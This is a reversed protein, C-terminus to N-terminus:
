TATNETQDRRHDRILLRIPVESFPLLDRFRNLLFRQYNNDFNHPNNVFLAITPPHVALQTVYYVRPQKGSKSAPAKERILQDVTRNLEGTTIRHDAQQYLNMAMGVIDRLGEEQQASVFVFPCFSLGKLTDDFYSMFQEQTTDEDVLDWKNVVVVTPKFHSLIENALQSDVQSIPVTADIVFLVVHARRISRLARHHSYFDIDEKISKRRRVGATDIATFVHGDMEFRVDVSDRTTGAQENVIVRQAGVLANVLTSKGANRKGVIAMLMGPDPRDGQTEIESFDLQDRIAQRLDDRGYGTTASIMAPDGMGLSLADYADNVQQATDVKNAVLLIKQDDRVHRRLLQAVQEDLPNVGTQADIVFLVLNAEDLASRIQQEIDATLNMVDDIGYGGTDVLDVYRAEPDGATPPLQITATVRDRTVGATPDVISVRRNALMNLLSSKGVNPRGIVAITPTQDRM